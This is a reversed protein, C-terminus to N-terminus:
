PSFGSNQLQGTYGCQGLGWQCDPFTWRFNIYWTGSSSYAECISYTNAVLDTTAPDLGPATFFNLVTSTGTTNDSIYCKGAPGATNDTDVSSDFVGPCKSIWIEKTGSSPSATADNFQVKASVAGPNFGGSSLPNPIAEYMIMGSPALYRGVGSLTLDSVARTNNPDPTPCGPVGGGGGGTQTTTTLDQAAGTASVTTVIANTKSSPASADLNFSGDTAPNIWTLCSAPNNPTRVLAVKASNQGVGITYPTDLPGCGGRTSVTITAANTGGGTRTITMFFKSNMGITPPNGIAPNGQAGDVTLSFTGPTSVVATTSCGSISLGGDPTVTANVYSNCLVTQDEAKKVQAGQADSPLAVAAAVLALGAMFTRRLLPNFPNHM